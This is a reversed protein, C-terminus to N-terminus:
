KEMVKHTMIRPVCIEAMYPRVGHLIGWYILFRVDESFTSCRISINHLDEDFLLTALIYSEAISSYDSEGCSHQV